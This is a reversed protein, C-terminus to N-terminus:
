SLAQYLSLWRDPSVLGVPEDLAIGAVTCAVRVEHAPHVRRLTAALSGGLGTFGFEVLQHYGRLEKRALLPQERRRLRLVAADVRPIPRFHHREVRTGLEITVTPWQTVTLKTWRGYEGAYKRAFERQTLLTASSLRPAALCWRLIDTSAAFPINAVVTFPERPPTIDRIDAHHVQIRRDSAYRARLREAYHRDKEYALIHRATSLLHRTLMGDGPGIEVVLDDTGVGAARVLRAAIGTDALFNQSLQKRTSGSRIRAHPLSRNRSM